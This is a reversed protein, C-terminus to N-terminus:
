FNIDSSNYNSNNTTTNTNHYALKILISSAWIIGIIALIVYIIVIYKFKDSLYGFKINHRIILASFVLFIILLVIHLLALFFM